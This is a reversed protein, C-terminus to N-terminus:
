QKQAVSAPSIPILVAHPGLRVGPGMSAPPVVGCFAVASFSRPDIPDGKRSPDPTRNTILKVERPWAFYTILMQLVGSEPSDAKVVIAVPKDIPLSGLLDLLLRSGDPIEASAYIYTDSTQFPTSQHVTGEKVTQALRPLSVVLYACGLMVLCITHLALRPSRRIWDM